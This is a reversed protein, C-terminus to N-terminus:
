LYNRIHTRMGCGRLELLADASAYARNTAIERARANAPYVTLGISVFILRATHM